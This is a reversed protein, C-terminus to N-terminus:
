VGFKLARAAKSSSRANSRCVGPTTSAVGTFVTGIDCPPQLMPKCVCGPGLWSPRETATYMTSSWPMSVNPASSIAPRSKARSSTRSRGSPVESQGGVVMRLAAMARPSHGSSSGVCTTPRVTYMPASSGIVTIPTTAVSCPGHGVEVLTSSEM